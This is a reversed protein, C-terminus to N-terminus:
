TTAVRELPDAPVSASDSKSPPASRFYPMRLLKTYCVNYSTIRCRVSNRASTSPERLATAVWGRTVVRPSYLLSTSGASTDPSGSLFIRGAAPLKASVDRHAAGDYGFTVGLAPSKFTNQFTAMVTSEGMAPDDFGRLADPLEIIDVNDGEAAVRGCM